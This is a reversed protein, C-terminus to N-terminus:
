PGKGPNRAPRGGPRRKRRKPAPKWYADFDELQRESEEISTLTGAGGKAVMLVILAEVVAMAAALSHFFSPSENGVILVEHAIKALPSVRSDTLVVSTGGRARAYEVAKVTERSYPEFSIALMLDRSAFARLDDAFTGGRGELLVANDRFMSYVYHFFFAVPFCSRRGAVFIREAAAMAEACAVFKEAGNAAFSGRLNAIDTSLIEELLIPVEDETGREQLDRARALYGSPRVRLREQFPQRFENYGKFDFTRALRVMTSPHVGADAALRRMSSLAVDDPRDLVHRAALQLRPSLRPFKDAIRQSLAAFDM